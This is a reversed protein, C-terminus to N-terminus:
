DTIGYEKYMEQRINEDTTAKSIDDQRKDAILRNILTALKNEGENRGEERVEDWLACVTVEDEKKLIDMGVNTTSAVVKIVTEDITRNNSYQELQQRKKKRDTKNDYIIKLLAFLDKNKQNKFVIKNDRVEVLNIKYNTVFPKLEDAIDLM